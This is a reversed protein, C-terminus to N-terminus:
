STFCIDLLIPTGIPPLKDKIDDLPLAKNMMGALSARDQTRYMSHSVDISQAWWSEFRRAAKAVYVAWRKERIRVLFAAHDRESLGPPVFEDRIGFLGNQTAINERLEHFCELLKLHAICQDRTPKATAQRLSLNSFAATIDPLNVAYSPPPSAEKAPEIPRQKELVTRNTKSDFM